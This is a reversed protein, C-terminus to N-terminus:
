YHLGLFPQGAKDFLFLILIAALWLVIAGQIVRDKRLVEEPEGGMGRQYVQYLYRFISFIVIPVTIWLRPHLKATVSEVSYVSYSVVTMGCVMLIIQDLFPLSYEELIKRHSGAGQGLLVLEQRRKGFGLFLALQFSCLLLWPSIYTLIVVGGAVTRLVFGVAICFVDVLVIHKLRLCYAIQLILYTALIIGLRPSLLFGLSLGLIMALACSAKALPIPLAGSAIPRNRKKPHNRDAEVDLLDNLLYVGGSVLTFLLFTAGVRKLSEFDGLKGAFVIAAFVFLNKTAQHPRMAKFLAGPVGLKSESM